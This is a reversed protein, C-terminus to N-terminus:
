AVAVVQELHGRLQQGLDRRLDAARDLESGIRRRPDGRRRPRTVDPLQAVGQEDGGEIGLATGDRRGMKRSGGLPLGGLGGVARLGVPSAVQRAGLSGAIKAM